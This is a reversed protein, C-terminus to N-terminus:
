LHLTQGSTHVWPLPPVGSQVCLLLSISHSSNRWGLTGAPLHRRCLLLLSNPVPATASPLLCCCTETVARSGTVSCAPNYTHLWYFSIWSVLHCVTQEDAAHAGQLMSLRTFTPTSSKYKLSQLSLREMLGLVASCGIAWRYSGWFILSSVSCHHTVAPKVPTHTGLAPGCPDATSLLGAHKGSCKHTHSFTDAAM